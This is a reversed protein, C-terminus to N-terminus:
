PSNGLNINSRRALLPISARYSGHKKAAGGSLITKRAVTAMRSSISISLMMMRYRMSSGRPLGSILALVFFICAGPCVEIDRGLLRQRSALEIPVTDLYLHRDFANEPGHQFVTLLPTRCHPCDIAIGSPGIAETEIM